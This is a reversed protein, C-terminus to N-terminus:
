KKLPINVLQQKVFKVTFTKEEIEMVTSRPIMLNVEIPADSVFDETLELDFTAVFTETPLNFTQLNRFQHGFWIGDYHTLKCPILTEVGCLTQAVSFERATIKSFNYSFPDKNLAAM